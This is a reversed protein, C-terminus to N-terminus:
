SFAPDQETMEPLVMGSPGADRLFLVSDLDGADLKYCQYLFGYRNIFVRLRKLEEMYYAELLDKSYAPKGCFITTYQILYIQEAVFLLKKKKLSTTKKMM